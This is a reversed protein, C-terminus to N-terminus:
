QSSVPRGAIKRAWKRAGLVCAFGASFQIVWRELDHTLKVAFKDDTVHPGDWQLYAFISTILPAIGDLMFYVGMLVFAWACADEFTMQFIINGDVDRTIGAALRGAVCWVFVAIIVLGIWQMLFLWSFNDFGSSSGLVVFSPILSVVEVILSLAYFRLAIVLAARLTM